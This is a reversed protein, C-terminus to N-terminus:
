FWWSRRALNYLDRNFADYGAATSGPRISDYRTGAGTRPSTATTATPLPPPEQGQLDDGNLWQQVAQYISSRRKNRQQRGNADNMTSNEEYPFYLTIFNDLAVNMTCDQVTFPSRCLPCAHQVPMIFNCQCALLKQKKKSYSISSQRHRQKRYHRSTYHCPSNCYPSTCACYLRQLCSRCFTHLCKALTVPESLVCLCIACTFDERSPASKELLTRDQLAQAGQTCQNYRRHWRSQLLHLISPQHHAVDWLILMQQDLYQQFLFLDHEWQCVLQICRKLEPHTDNSSLVREKLGQFYIDFSMNSEQLREGHVIKKDDDNDDKERTVLQSKPRQSTTQGPAVQWERLYNSILQQAHQLSRCNPNQLPSAIICIESCLEDVRQELSELAVRSREYVRDLEDNWICFFDENTDKDQQQNLAYQLADVHVLDDRYFQSDTLCSSTSFSLSPAVIVTSSASTFLQQQQQQESSHKKVHHRKITRWPHLVRTLLRSM